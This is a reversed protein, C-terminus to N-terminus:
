GTVLNYHVFINGNILFFFVGVGVILTINIFVPLAVATFDGVTQILIYSNCKSM